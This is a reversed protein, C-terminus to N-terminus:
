ALPSATPTWSGRFHLAAAFLVRHAPGPRSPTPPRGPLTGTCGPRTASRPAAHRWVPTRSQPLEFGPRGRPDSRVVWRRATLQMCTTCAPPENEHRMVERNGKSNGPTPLVAQGGHLRLHLHLLRQGRRTSSDQATRIRLSDTGLVGSAGPVGAPREGRPVPAARLVLQAFSCEPAPGGGTETRETRSRHGGLM